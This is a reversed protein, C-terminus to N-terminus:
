YKGPIHAGKRPACGSGSESVKRWQLHTSRNRCSLWQFMKNLWLVEEDLFGIGWSGLRATGGWGLISDRCFLKASDPQVNPLGERQNSSFDHWECLAEWAWVGGVRWGEWGWLSLGSSTNRPGESPTLWQAWWGLDLDGHSFQGGLALVELECRGYHLGEGGWVGPTSMKRTEWNRSFMDIEWTVFDWLDEVVWGGLSQREQASESGTLEGGKKATLELSSALTGRRM